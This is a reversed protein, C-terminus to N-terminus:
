NDPNEIDGRSAEPNTKERLSSSPLYPDRFAEEFSFGNKFDARSDEDSKGFVGAEVLNFVIEGIDEGVNLGWEQLLFFAMPGYEELAYRRMGELLESGSVHRVKSKVVSKQTYDLSRRVFHYAEIDYRPDQSVIRELTANLDM